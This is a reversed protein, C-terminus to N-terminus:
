SQPGSTFSGLTAFVCNGQSPLQLRVTYRTNPRLPPLWAKAIEMSDMSINPPALYGSTDLELTGGDNAYPTGDSLVVRQEEIAPGGRPVPVAIEVWTGTLAVGSAADAPFLLVPAIAPTVGCPTNTIYEARAVQPAGLTLIACLALAGSVPKWAYRNM